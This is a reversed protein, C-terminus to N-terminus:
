GGPLHPIGILCSCGSHLRQNLYCTLRKIAIGKDGGNGMWARSTNHDELAHYTVICPALLYTIEFIINIRLHGYLLYARNNGFCFLAPTGPMDSNRVANPSEFNSLGTHDDDHRGRVAGFSKFSAAINDIRELFGHRDPLFLYGGTSLLPYLTSDKLLKSPYAVSNKITCNCTSMTKRSFLM